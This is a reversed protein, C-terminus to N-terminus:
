GMHHAARDRARLISDFPETCCIGDESLWEFWPNHLVEFDHGGQELQLLVNEPLGRDRSSLIADRDRAEVMGCLRLTFSGKPTNVDVLNTVSDPSAHALANALRYDSLAAQNPTAPFAEKVFPPYVVPPLRKETM